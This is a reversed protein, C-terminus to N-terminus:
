LYGLQSASAVATDLHSRPYLDNVEWAAIAMGLAEEVEQPQQQQNLDLMVRASNIADQLRRQQMAVALLPWHALWDFPYTTNAWSALAAGALDQTQQWEGARYHIWASNAQSVGIYNKNGIQQATEVLQPLHNTVQTMDGQFRYLITLYVLCQIQLWSDGLEEATDLAQQLFEIAENLNDQWLQSFGLSFGVHFQQRAILAPNHSEKALAYAKRALHIKENPMRYRNQLLVMQSLRSYYDARQKQTGVEDLLAQTQEDLEAMAEPRHQFYLADMLSLLINLRVSQWQTYAATPAPGELRALAAQYAIVAKDEGQLPPLTDALKRELDALRLADEEPALELARAFADRASGFSGTKLATDGTQEWFASARVFQEALTYHEAVLGSFEGLREGATHEIWQAIRAHYERRLRRLVTEYTVDRLLAHKFIYEVAGAFASEARPFIFEKTELAPLALHGENRLAMLATDWFIRGIVSAQQVAQKEAPRLRDLRAQLVGTLTDPVKLERLHEPAVHWSEGGTAITGDDILMKVLEEAYFPNGEARSSVLDLLQQPLPDIHRLIQAVLARSDAASLPFM